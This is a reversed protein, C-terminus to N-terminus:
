VWSKNKSNRRERQFCMRGCTSRLRLLLSTELLFICVWMMSQFPFTQLDTNPFLGTKQTKQKGTKQGMQQNRHHFGSAADSIGCNHFDIFYPLFRTKFTTPCQRQHNRRRGRLGLHLCCCNYVRIGSGAGRCWRRM